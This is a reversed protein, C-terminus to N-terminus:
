MNAAEGTQRSDKVPAEQTFDSIVGSPKSNNIMSAAMQQREDVVNNTTNAMNGTNQNLIMTSSVTKQESSNISAAVPQPENRSLM